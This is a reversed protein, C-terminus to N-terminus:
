CNFLLQRIMLFIYLWVFVLLMKFKKGSASYKGPECGIKKDLSNVSKARSFVRCLLGLRDLESQISSQLKDAINSDDQILM